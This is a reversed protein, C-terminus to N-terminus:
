TKYILQIQQHLHLTNLLSFSTLTLICNSDNIKLSALSVVSKVAGRVETRHNKRKNGGCSLYLPIKDLEGWLVSVMSMNEKQLTVKRLLFPISFLFQSNLLNSDSVIKSEIQESEVKLKNDSQILSGMMIIAQSSPMFCTKHLSERRHYTNISMYVPHAGSSNTFILLYINPYCFFINCCSSVIGDYSSSSTYLARQIFM